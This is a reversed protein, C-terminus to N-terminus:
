KSFVNSDSYIDRRHSIAIVPPQAAAARQALDRMAHSLVWPKHPGASRPGAPMPADQKAENSDTSM